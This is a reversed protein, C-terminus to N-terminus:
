RTGHRRGCLLSFILQPLHFKCLNEMTMLAGDVIVHVGEWSEVVRGSGHLSHGDVHTSCTQKRSWAASCECNECVLKTRLICSSRAFEFDFRMWTVHETVLFEHAHLLELANRQQQCLQRNADSTWVSSKKKTGTAWSFSFIPDVHFIFMASLALVFFRHLLTM